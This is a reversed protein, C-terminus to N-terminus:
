SQSLFFFSNTSVNLQQQLSKLAETIQDAHEPDHEEQAELCMLAIALLSPQLSICYVHGTM